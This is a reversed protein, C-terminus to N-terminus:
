CAASCLAAWCRRGIALVLATRTRRGTTSRLDQWPVGATRPLASGPGAISSHSDGGPFALGVLIDTGGSVIDAPHHM